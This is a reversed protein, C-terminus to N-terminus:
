AKHQRSDLPPASRSAPGHIGRRKAEACWRKITRASVNWESALTEIVQPEGDVVLETRRQVLLSLEHDDPGPPGPHAPWYAAQTTTTTRPRRQGTVFADALRQARGLDPESTSAAEEAVAVLVDHVLRSGLRGWLKSWRDPPLPDTALVYIGAIQWTGTDGRTLKAAGRLLPGDRVPSAALLGVEVEVESAGPRRPASVHLLTTDAGTDLAARLRDPHTSTLDIRGTRPRRERRAEVLLHDLTTKNRVEGSM